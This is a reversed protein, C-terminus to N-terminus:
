GQELNRPRQFERATMAHSSQLTLRGEKLPVEM